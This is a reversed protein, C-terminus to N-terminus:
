GKWECMEQVKAQVNGLRPQDSVQKVGVVGDVFKANQLCMTIYKSRISTNQLVVM